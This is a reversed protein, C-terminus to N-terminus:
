PLNGGNEGTLPHPDAQADGFSFNRDGIYGDNAGPYGMHASAEASAYYAVKALQVAFEIEPLQTLAHAVTEERAGPKLAVFDRRYLDRAYSDLAVALLPVLTAIQSGAEFFKGAAGVDLAGVAGEPDRHKGPVVVDVFAAIVRGEDTEPAGGLSPLDVSEVYAKKAPVCHALALAAALELLERRTVTHRM